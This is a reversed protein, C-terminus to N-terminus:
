LELVKRQVITLNLKFHPIYTKIDNTVKQLENISINEKKLPVVYACRFATDSGYDCLVVHLKILGQSLESVLKAEEIKSEIIHSPSHLFSGMGVLIFLENEKIEVPKITNHDKFSANYFVEIEDNILSRNYLKKEIKDMYKQDHGWLLSDIFTQKLLCQRPFDTQQSLNEFDSLLSIHAENLKQSKILNSTLIQNNM